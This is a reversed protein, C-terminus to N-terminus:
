RSDAWTRSLCARQPCSSLVLSVLVQPLSVVPQTIITWAQRHVPDGQIVNCANWPALNVACTCVSTPFLISDAKRNQCCQSRTHWMSLLVLHGSVLLSPEAKVLKVHEEDKTLRQIKLLISSNSKLPVEGGLFFMRMRMGDWIYIIKKKKESSCFYKYFFLGDRHTWALPYIGQCRLFICFSCM